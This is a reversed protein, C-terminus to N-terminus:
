VAPSELSAPARLLTVMPIGDDTAWRRFERFGHAKYLLIAPQNRIGTSVTIPGDGEIAIIRRLLATALGRRFHDPRVVMAAIHVHRPEPREVEAVAALVNAVSVGLFLANTEAIHSATRHLPFFDVVGLLAAEVRYAEVMVVRIAEAVPPESHALTHVHPATM